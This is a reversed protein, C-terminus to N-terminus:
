QGDGVRAGMMMAWLGTVQLLWVVVLALVVFTLITKITPHMPVWKNVAWMIFGILALILIIAIIPM